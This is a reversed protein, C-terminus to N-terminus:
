RQPVLPYRARRPDRCLPYLKPAQREHFACLRVDSFAAAFAELTPRLCPELNSQNTM